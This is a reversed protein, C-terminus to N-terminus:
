KEFQAKFTEFDENYFAAIMLYANGETNDPVKGTFKKLEREATLYKKDKEAKKGRELAVGLVINHPLTFLSFLLILVICAAFLGIWLPIPTRIFQQRCDACLATPHDEEMAPRGCQACAQSSPEPLEPTLTEEM